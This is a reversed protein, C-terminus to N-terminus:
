KHCNAVSNLSNLASNGALEIHENQSYIANALQSLSIDQMTADKKHAKLTKKDVKNRWQNLKNGM